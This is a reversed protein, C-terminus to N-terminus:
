KEKKLIHKNPKINFWAKLQIEKETINPEIFRTITNTYLANVLIITFICTILLQFFIIFIDKM